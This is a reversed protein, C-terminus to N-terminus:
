SISFEPNVKNLEEPVETLDVIKYNDMGAMDYNIYTNFNGNISGDTLTHSNTYLFMLSGRISDDILVMVGDIFSEILVNGFMFSHKVTLCQQVKYNMKEGETSSVWMNEPVFSNVVVVESNQHFIHKKAIDSWVQVELVM